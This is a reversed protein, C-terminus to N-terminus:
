RGPYKKQTLILVEALIRMWTDKDEVIKVIRAFDPDAEMEKALETHLGNIRNEWGEPGGLRGAEKMLEVQADPDNHALASNETFLMWEYEIRREDEMFKLAADAQENSLWERFHAEYLIQIREFMFDLLEKDEKEDCLSILDHLHMRKASLIYQTTLNEYIDMESTM